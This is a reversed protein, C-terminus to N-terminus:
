KASVKAGDVGYAMEILKKAQENDFARRIQELLRNIGEAVAVKLQTPWLRGSVYDTKIEEFNAYIHAELTPPSTKVSVLAARDVSGMKGLPLLIYEILPMLGNNEMKGDAAFAGNVKARVVEPSDLLGIKFAPNGGSSMKGGGRSGGNLGPIIKNMLHIRRRYGLKPMIEQALVFIKRQDLGGLQVDADLYEEDLVQLMPYLLASVKAGDGKKKSAKVVDSSAKTAEKDTVFNSMKYIDMTYKHSLQFTSGLVFKLQKEMVGKDIGMSEMMAEIIMRYYASRHALKEESVVSDGDLLAHLDALLITVHGGAVLFHILKQLPVFYAIHPASTTATGWYFKVPRDGALLIKLEEKQESHFLTNKKDEETKDDILSSCILKLRDDITLKEEKTETGAMKRPPSQTLPHALSRTISHDLSGALTINLISRINRNDSFKDVM